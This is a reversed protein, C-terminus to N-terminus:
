WKFEKILEVLHIAVLGGYRIIAQTEQITSSLLENLGDLYAVIRRQERKAAM